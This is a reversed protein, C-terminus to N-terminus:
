DSGDRRRSPYARFAQAPVLGFSFVVMTSARGFARLPCLTSPKACSPLVSLEAGPTRVQQCGTRASAAALNTDPCAKLRASFAANYLAGEPAAM